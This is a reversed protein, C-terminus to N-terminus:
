EDSPESDLELFDDAIRHVEGTEHDWLFVPNQLAQPADPEPLLVLRDGTGNDAVAVAHSPFGSWRRASETERVIDNCTRKLRTRDTTDLFPHLWWAEGHVRVEGGNDRIMRAVFGLPFSVGLKAETSKVFAIDIPFPM